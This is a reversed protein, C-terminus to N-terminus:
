EQSKNFVRCDECASCFEELSHSCGYCDEIEENHLDYEAQLERANELDKERRIDEEIMMKINKEM